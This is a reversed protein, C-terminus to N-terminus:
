RTTKCSLYASFVKTRMACSPRGRDLDQAVMISMGYQYNLMLNLSKALVQQPKGDQQVILGYEPGAANNAVM